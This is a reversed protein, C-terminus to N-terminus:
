NHLELGKIHKETLKFPVLGINMGSNKLVFFFDLEWSKNKHFKTFSRM